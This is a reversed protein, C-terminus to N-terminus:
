VKKEQQEKDWCILAYVYERSLGIIKAIQNGSLGQKLLERIKELKQLTPKTPTYVIKMDRHNLECLRGIIISKRHRHLGLSYYVCLLLWKDLPDKERGILRKVCGFVYLM